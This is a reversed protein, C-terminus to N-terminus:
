SATQIHFNGYEDIHCPLDPPIVITTGSEEVIAPGSFSMGPELKDGDYFM